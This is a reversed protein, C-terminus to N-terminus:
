IRNQSSQKNHIQRNSCSNNCVTDAHIGVSEVPYITFLFSNAQSLNDQWYKSHNDDIGFNATKRCRCYLNYLAFCQSGQVTELLTMQCMRYLIADEHQTFSKCLEVIELQINTTEGKYWDQADIWWWTLNRLIELKTQISKASRKMRRLSIMDAYQVIKNLM